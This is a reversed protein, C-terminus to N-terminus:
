NYINKVLVMIRLLYLQQKQLRLQEMDIYGLEEGATVDFTPNRHFMDRLM